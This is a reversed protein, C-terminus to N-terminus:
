EQASLHLRFTVSQRDRTVQIVIDQGTKDHLTVLFDRLTAIGQGNVSTIVDDRRLGVHEAHSGPEVFAVLVGASDQLHLATALAGDFEQLHMGLKKALEPSPTRSSVPGTQAAEFVATAVFIPAHTGLALAIADSPRADITHSTSENQLLISAYFTNDRLTHIMIRAVTIHLDALINQLLTHTLPRPAAVREMELAIARAESMGIWIPLAQRGDRTELIVVPSRGSPDMTIGKVRVELLPSASLPTAFSCPLCWLTCLFLSFAISRQKM